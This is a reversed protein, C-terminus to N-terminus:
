RDAPSIKVPRVAVGYERSYSQPKCLYDSIHDAYAQPQPGQYAKSDLYAGYQDRNSIENGSGWGNLPFFLEAMRYDGRGVFLLGYRGNYHVMQMDCNAMLAEFDEYTPTRWDKGWNVTAPDYEPALYGDEGVMTIIGANKLNELGLIDYTKCTEPTFAFSGGERDLRQWHGKGDGDDVWKNGIPDGFQFYHGYDWTEKAGINHTSWAPGGKWLVVSEHECIGCEQGSTACAKETAPEVKLRFFKGWTSMVGNWQVDVDEWDGMDLRDRAMITYRRKKRGENLNPAWSFVLSTAKKEMKLELKANSDTPDIGMLFCEYVKNIGNEAMEKARNEHAADDAARMDYYNYNLWSFAVPIETTKTYRADMSFELMEWEVRGSDWSRMARVPYAIYRIQNGEAQLRNYPLSPDYLWEFAHAYLKGDGNLGVPSTSWVCAYSGEGYLEKGNGEGAAPFFLVREAFADRGRMEFGQVGGQETWTADANEGLDGCEKVHPLRWPGGCHVRVPDYSDTLRIKQYEAEELVGMEMLDELTKDMTFWNVSFSWDSSSGDSAVWKGNERRYGITDGWQFYYGPEEPKSAGVNAEMWYPGNEWLQVGGYPYEGSFKVNISDYNYDAPLVKNAEWRYRVVWNTGEGQESLISTDKTDFYEFTRSTWVEFNLSLKRIDEIEGEYTAVFDVLPKYPESVDEVSFATLKPVEGALANMMLVSFGALMMGILPFTKRKTQETM